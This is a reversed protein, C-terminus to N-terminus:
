RRPGRGSRRRGGLALILGATLEAQAMAAGYLGVSCGGPLSCFISSGTDMSTFLLRGQLRLGLQDSLFVKAGAGVIGSFRWESSFGPDDPNFNTAGLTLTGFPYTQGRRVQLLGGAQLYQVTMDFLTTRVGTARDRLDLETQQRSYVLEVQGKDGAQIDIAIGFSPAAQIDLDGDRTSVGGGFQWGGFPSIEVNQGVASQPVLCYIFPLALAISRRVLNGCLRTCM